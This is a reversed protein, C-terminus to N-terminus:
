EEKIKHVDDWRITISHNDGNPNMSEYDNLMIQLENIADYDKKIGEGEVIITATFRFKAM